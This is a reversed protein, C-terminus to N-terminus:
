RNKMRLIERHTKFNFNLIKNQVEDNMGIFKVAIDFVNSNCDVRVVEGYLYFIKYPQVPLVIKIELVSGVDYSKNSTIRMGNASVLLANRLYSQLVTM